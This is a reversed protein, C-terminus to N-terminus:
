FTGTAIFTITDGYDSHAPTSLSNEANVRIESRGGVVASPVTLINQAGTTVQGITNVHGSTCTAGNFPSVKALTGGSTQTVSGVCLGYNAVGAAMTGTTSPITDGPVSASKLSGNSSVVSVSAGGSGNTDLDVWISNIASNDSNSANATTLSGLAVLYPTNTNINTTATDIDFSISPVTITACVKGTYASADGNTANDAASMSFLTTDYGSCNTNQYGVTIVDNGVSDSICANTGYTNISTQQTHANTINSLKAFIQKNSAACSNGLGSIGSCCVVNNDYNPNSQSPLEAHANTSSSLRLLTVSGGTCAAQTTVSCSLAAYIYSIPYFLLVVLVWFFIFNSVKIKSRAQYQRLHHVIKIM